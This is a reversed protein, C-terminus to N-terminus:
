VAGRLLTSGGELQTPRIWSAISGPLLRVLLILDLSRVKRFLLGLTSVGSELGGGRRVVPGSDAGVHNSTDM